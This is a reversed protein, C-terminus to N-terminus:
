YPKHRSKSSSPPPPPTPYTSSSSSSSSSSPYPDSRGYDARYYESYGRPPYGYGYGYGYPPPYSGYGKNDKDNRAYMGWYDYGSYHSGRSQGGNNHPSYSPRHYNSGHSPPPPYPFPPPPLHHSGSGHHGYSGSSSSSSSSSSGHSPFPPPRHRKELHSKEQPIAWEITLKRGELDTGNMKEMATQADNRNSFHLFAHGIPTKKKKDLPIVSKEVNWESFIKKLQDEGIHSAIGKVFLSKVNDFVRQDVARPEAFSVFLVKSQFTAAKLAKM